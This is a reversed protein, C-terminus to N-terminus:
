VALTRPWIFNWSSINNQLFSSTHENRQSSKVMVGLIIRFRVPKVGFPETLFLFLLSVMVDVKGESLSGSNTYTLEVLGYLVFIVNIVRPDNFNV